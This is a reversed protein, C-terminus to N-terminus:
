FGALVERTVSLRYDMGLERFMTEAKTLYQRAKERQNHHAYVEGLFLHGQPYIPKTNLEDAIKM